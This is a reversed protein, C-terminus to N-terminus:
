KTRKGENKEVELEYDLLGASFIILPEWDIANLISSIDTHIGKFDGPSADEHEIELFNYRQQILDVIEQITVFRKGAVNFVKNEAFESMAAVNGKALDYVHIWCRGQDGKGFIKIKEGRLARKVFTAIAMNGRMRPGYPIDYRLITYPLGYQKEWAHVLNEQAIKTMTYVHEPQPIPNDEDVLPRDNKGYVWTTM